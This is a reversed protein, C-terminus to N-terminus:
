KKVKSMQTKSPNSLFGAFACVLFLTLVMIYYGIGFTLHQNLERVMDLQTNNNYFNTKERYVFFTSLILTIFAVISIILPTYNKKLFIFRSLFSTLIGVFCLSIIQYKLLSTAEWLSYSQYEKELNIWNLFISVSSVIFLLAVLIYSYKKLLSIFPSRDEKNSM